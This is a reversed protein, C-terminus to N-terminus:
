SQLYLAIRKLLNSQWPSGLGGLETIYQPDLKFRQTTLESINNRGTMARRILDEPEIGLDQALRAVVFSCEQSLPVGIDGLFLDYRHDNKAPVNFYPQIKMGASPSTVSMIKIGDQFIWLNTTARRSGSRKSHNYQATLENVNLTTIPYEFYTAHSYANSYVLLGWRAEKAGFTDRILQNYGDIVVRMSKEPPDSSNWEEVKRTLAPHMIRPSFPYEKRICKMEIVRDKYEIDKGFLNSFGQPDIGLIKCYIDTWHEEELKSLGISSIALSWEAKLKEFQKDTFVPLPTSELFM